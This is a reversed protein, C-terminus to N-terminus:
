RPIEQMVQTLKRSQDLAGALEMACREPERAYCGWFANLAGALASAISESVDLVRAAKNVCDSREGETKLGLASCRQLETDVYTEVATTAVSASREIALAVQAQRTGACGVAACAALLMISAARRM